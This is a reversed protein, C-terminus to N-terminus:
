SGKSMKRGLGVAGAQARPPRNEKSRASGAAEKGLAISVGSDSRPRDEVKAPPEDREADPTEDPRVRNRKPASQLCIACEYGAAQSLTLYKIKPYACYEDHSSPAPLKPANCPMLLHTSTHGCPHPTSTIHCMKEKEKPFSRNPLHPNTSIKRPNNFRCNSCPECTRPPPSEHGSDSTNVFTIATPQCALVSPLRDLSLCCPFSRAADTSSPLFLM